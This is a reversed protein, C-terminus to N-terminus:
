SENAVIPLTFQFTAGFDKNAETWLHGGHAEIISRSIALGMGMGDPKTTIFAKFLHQAAQSDIGQGNDSVAIRLTNNNFYGSSIVVARQREQIARLAEAANAILNFMVQQLQIRDGPVSPLKGALEVGLRISNQVM